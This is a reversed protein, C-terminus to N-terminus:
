LNIKSKFISENFKIGIELLSKSKSRALILSKSSKAINEFIFIAYKKKLFNRRKTL